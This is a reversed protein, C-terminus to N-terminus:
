RKFGDGSLLRCLFPFLTLAAFGAVLSGLVIAGGFRTTPPFGSYAFIIFGVAIVGTSAMIGASQERLARDWGVADTSDSVHRKVALALHILADIAIGLCVSIAPASIIDIPIALWGSLGLITIPILSATAVMAITVSLQRSALYGVLGIFALLSLIGTTLSQFILDSLRGQLVYVGGTLVQDFGADEILARIEEMIDIRSAGRGDEKMRLVFLTQDRDETLFSNAISQNIDLSLLSVIERWPLLFALPHNNAEALLAPLSIVTGVEPHKQLAHHLRWMAEYSEESDLRDGNTRRVVLEAPSSGGNRDIFELGERLESEESFYSLLSPDTNLRFLGPISLAATGILILGIGGRLLSGYKPPNVPITRPKTPRPRNRAFLLFAPYILFCCLLASLAGVIGGAGLQRLPEAAVFLLTAFGLLTTVTCWYSARMTKFIAQRVADVTEKEQRWNSTLYILQSQVLVYVIIALNATLIGVPQGLFQLILLTLLIATLGSAAAGIVIMPSRFLVFLLVSFVLLALGSFLQIDHILSRRIQEVIYPMGSLRVQFTKEHHFLRAADEVEAVLNDPTPHGLFAIILTADERESILLPRWFPSTLAAEISDPGESVSVLRAVGPLASLNSSFAAIRQFYTPSYIDPSAVSIILFADSPFLDRIVASQAMDPDDSGFFFDPTVQPRLDVFALFLAGIVLMVLLCLGLLRNRLTAFFPGM